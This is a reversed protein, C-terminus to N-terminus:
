RDCGPQTREVLGDTEGEGQSKAEPLNDDRKVFEGFLAELEKESTGRPIFTDPSRLTM